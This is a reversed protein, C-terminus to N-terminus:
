VRCAFSTYNTIMDLMPVYRKFISMIIDKYSMCMKFISDLERSIHHFSSAFCLFDNIRREVNLPGNYNEHKFAPM